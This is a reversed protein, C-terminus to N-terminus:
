VEKSLLTIMYRLEEDVDGEEAVTAAVEKRAIKAFMRRMRHLAVRVAQETMHLRAACNAAAGEQPEGEVGLAPSLAAYLERAGRRAYQAELQQLARRLLALAWARDFAQDPEEDAAVPLASIEEVGLSDLPLIIFGGGRKTRDQRTQESAIVNKLSTLLYSRLRGRCPDARVLANASLLKVFVDQVVDQADAENLGFRRAYAFLPQWYIICLQEVARQATASGAQKQLAQILTWRTTPFPSKPKAEELGDPADM